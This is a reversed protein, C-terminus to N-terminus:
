CQISGRYGCDIQWLGTFRTTTPIAQTRVTCSCREGPTLAAVAAAAAPLDAVTARILRETLTEISLDTWLTPPDDEALSAEVAALAVALIDSLGAVARNGAPELESMPEPEREPEPESGPEYEPEPELEPEPEVAPEIAPASQLKTAEFRGARGERRGVDLPRPPRRRLMRLRCQRHEYTETVSARDMQQGTIRPTMPTGTTTSPRRPQPRVLEQKLTRVAQVAEALENTQRGGASGVDGSVTATAAIDASASLSSLASEARELQQRLGKTLEQSARRQDASCRLAEQQDRAARAVLLPRLQTISGRLSDAARQRAAAERVHRRRRSATATADDTAPAAPRSSASGGATGAAAALQALSRDAGQRGHQRRGKLLRRLREDPQM